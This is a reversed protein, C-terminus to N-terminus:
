FTGDWLPFKEQLEKATSHQLVRPTAQVRIITHGQEKAMHLLALLGNGHSGLYHWRGHIKVCATYGGVEKWLYLCAQLQSRPDDAQHSEGRRCATELIKQNSQMIDEIEGFCLAILTGFLWFGTIM